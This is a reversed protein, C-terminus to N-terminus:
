SELTEGRRIQERIKPIAENVIFDDSMVNGQFTINIAQGSGQNMNEMAEIGMNEVADRNMIFEGQEAIIPTGGNAHDKGGILGGAAMTPPQQSKIIALQAAGMVAAIISGPVGGGMPNLAVAKSIGDATNMIVNAVKVMQQKKFERAIKANAEDEEKKRAAAYQAQIAKEMQVKKNDGARKYALSNRLNDLESKEQTNLAEINANARDRAADMSMQSFESIISGAQATYEKVMDINAQMAELQTENDEATFIQVGRVQKLAEKVADTYKLGADMRQAILTIEEQSFQKVATKNKDFFQAEKESAFIQSNINKNIKETQQDLWDARQQELSVAENLAPYLEELIDKYKEGGAIRSAILKTEEESINSILGEEFALLQLKVAQKAADNNKNELTKLYISNMNELTIMEEFVVDQIGNQINMRKEAAEVLGSELDIEREKDTINQKLQKNYDIEILLSEFLEINNDSIASGIAEHRRFLTNAQKATLDYKMMFENILDNGEERISYVDGESKLLGDSKQVLKEISDVYKENNIYATKPNISLRQTVDDTAVVHEFVNGFQDSLLGIDDIINPFQNRFNSLNDVDELDFIKITNRLAKGEKGSKLFIGMETNLSQLYTDSIEAESNLDFFEASLKELTSTDAEVTLSGLDFSGAINKLKKQYLEYEKSVANVQKAEKEHKDIADDVDDNHTQLVADNDGFVNFYDLLAGALMGVAVALAGWGTSILVARMGKAAATASITAYYQAITQRKLYLMASAAVGLGVAYNSLDGPKVTKLFETQAQSAARLAPSYFDSFQIGVEDIAAKLKISDGALNDLMTDAMKSMTGDVDQLTGNFNELEPINNFLITFATVARKGVLDAGQTAPDFGDEKLMKMAKTLDGFSKVPFGVKKALKSNESGVDLLIKRLSTGAMSGHIMNNALISLMATSEQLSFNMANAIPGVYTMSNSFRELNLASGSFAAGMVDTVEIMQESQLQFARLTGGAIESAFALDEGTGAALNLVADTVNEIEQAQFGLKSLEFQLESVNQATYVSTLGFDRASQRLSNFQQETAGSVAKVSSMTKDFEKGVEIAASFAKGLAYTGVALAAMAATAAEMSVEANDVEDNFQKLQSKTLKIGKAKLELILQQKSLAM